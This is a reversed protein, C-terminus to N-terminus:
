TSFDLYYTESDIKQITIDSRGYNEFDAMRIKQGSPLGLRDRIYAGLISNNKHTEIAKGGQQAIVCDMSKDDDTLIIFHQGIPPFFGSRRIAVPVPIYAQNPNRGPRQGWNVGSRDGVENRGTLLSLTVSERFSQLVVDRGTPEEIYEIQGDAYVKRTITRREDYLNIRSIVTPDLCDISEEALAEYVSKIPTAECEVMAEIQSNSFAPQSYNASGAFGKKPNVGNFWGYLKLHAPKDATSYRCSFRDPFEETALKKFTNHSGLRIGDRAAMGILLVVSFGTNTNLHRYVIAPSAYGSVIYLKNAGQISPEVLVKEYLNDIIM